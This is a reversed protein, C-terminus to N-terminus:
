EDAEGRWSEPLPMWAVIEDRIACYTYMQEWWTGKGNGCYCAVMMDGYENQVLFYKRVDEEYENPKPLRETVPIWRQEPPIARIRAMIAQGNYDLPHIDGVAEIAAKRSILDSM